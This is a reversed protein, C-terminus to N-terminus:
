KVPLVFKFSSGKGLESEVWIRGGYHEVIEKCIALGLGTGFPRDSMTDVAQSQYFINFIQQADEEPIGGGTDEVSFEVGEDGMVVGVKVYGKDTFKVANNLLNILVQHMRDRDVRLSGIGTQVDVILAVDLSDDLQGAITDTAGRVLDIVDVDLDRWEMRGAEIKNLDLLDDILRGLRDTESRVIKFNELFTGVRKAAEPVDSLHPQFRKRFSKEMLKIFGNIATLPTRLEHSTSSLFHSKAKDLCLLEENAEELEMTRESVKEELEDHAKQLAKQDQAILLLMANVNHGLEAVEDRGDVTVSTISKGSMDVNKVQENLREIRSLVRKQLLFYMLVSFSVLVAALFLYNYMSVIQGQRSIRRSEDVELLLCPYEDIGRLLSFGRITDQDKLQVAADEGAELSRLVGPFADPILPDNKLAHVLVDLELRGSIEEIIEDTLLRAMVMIGSPPGSGDSKLVERMAILIPGESLLVVGGSGGNEGLSPMNGRKIAELVEQLLAESEAGDSDIAHGYVLRGGSGIVVIANLSQELFTEVQLNSELYKANGDQAFVYTDDWSSWDWLFTNLNAIERLFENKVKRADSAVQQRELQEFGGTVIYDSILFEVAMIVLALAFICALTVSRLKMDDVGDMFLLNWLKM